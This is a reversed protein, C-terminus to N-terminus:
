DCSHATWKAFLEERSRAEYKRAARMLLVRVTAYSIELHHAIEKTRLGQAALIVVRREGKTLIDPGLAPSPAQRLILYRAGDAQVECVPEWRRGAFPRAAPPPGASPPRALDFRRLLTALPHDNVPPEGSSRPPRQGTAPSARLIVSVPHAVSHL